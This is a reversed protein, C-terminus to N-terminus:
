WWWLLLQLYYWWDWPVVLGRNNVSSYSWCCCFDCASSCMSWSCTLSDVCAMFFGCMFIDQAHPLGHQWSAVRSSTLVHLLVCGV